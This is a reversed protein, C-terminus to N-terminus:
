EAFSEARRHFYWVVLTAALNVGLAAASAWSEKRRWVAMTAGAASALAVAGAAWLLEEWAAGRWPVDVLAAKLGL